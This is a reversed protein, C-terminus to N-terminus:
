NNPIEIDNSSTESSPISCITKSDITISIYNSTIKYDSNKILKDSYLYKDSLNIMLYIKFPKNEIPEAIREFSISNYALYDKLNSLNEKVKSMVEKNIVGTDVYTNGAGIMGISKMFDNKTMSAESAKSDITEQIITKIQDITDKQLEITDRYFALSIITPTGVLVATGLTAGCIAWTMVNKKM